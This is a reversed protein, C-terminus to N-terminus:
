APSRVCDDILVLDDYRGTCSKKLTEAQVSRIIKKVMSPSQSISPQSILSLTKAAYVPPPPFFGYGCAVVSVCCPVVVKFPRIIGNLGCRRWDQTCDSVDETQLAGFKLLSAHADSSM